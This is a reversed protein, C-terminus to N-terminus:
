SGPLKAELARRLERVRKPPYRSAVEEAVARAVDTASGAREVPESYRWGALYDEYETLGASMAVADVAVQFRPPLHEVVQGAEDSARVGTPIGHWTLIEYYTTM